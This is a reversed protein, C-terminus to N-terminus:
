KHQKAGLLTAKPRGFSDWPADGSESQMDTRMKKLKDELGTMPSLHHPLAVKHQENIDPCRLPVTSACSM